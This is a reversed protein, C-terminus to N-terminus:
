IVTSLFNYEIHILYPLNNSNQNSVKGAIQTCLLFVVLHDWEQGVELTAHIITLVMLRIRRCQGSCRHKPGPKERSCQKIIHYLCIKKRYKRYFDKELMICTTKASPSPPSYFIVLIVLHPRCLFINTKTLIIFELRLILIQRKINLYLQGLRM